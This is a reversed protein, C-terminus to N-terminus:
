FGPVAGIVAISVVPDGPSWRTVVIDSSGGHEFMLTVKQWNAHGIAEGSEFELTGDARKGGDKQIVRISYDARGIEIGDAIILGNGVVSGLIKMVM